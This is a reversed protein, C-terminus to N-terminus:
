TCLQGTELAELNSRMVGLYDAGASSDTLGEIPDLVAVKAGTEGALTRALAPSALTEYYITHVHHSRVFAAVKSLGAPSPEQDPSLGTIGVQRLGYREALYGFASHSTVLDRERCHALGTRYEKDLAQLDARLKTANEEYARANDPDVSQMRKAIADGVRALRLPDLWFHPDKAREGAGNAKADTGGGGEEGPPALRNLHAVGAVDLHHDGAVQAVADDVAPQLGHLHVVLSSEEVTAVDRPTLELDHPEAGPKTLNVISAHDGVVRGTAYQLPYFATVIRLKGDTGTTDPSSGGHSGCGAAVLVAGTCAGAALLVAAWRVSSFM